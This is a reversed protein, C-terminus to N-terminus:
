VALPIQQIKLRLLQYSPVNEKKTKIWEIRQYIETGESNSYYHIIRRFYNDNIYKYIETKM